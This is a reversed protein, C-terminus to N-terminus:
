ENFNKSEKKAKLIEVVEILNTEDFLLVIENSKKNKSVNVENEYDQM